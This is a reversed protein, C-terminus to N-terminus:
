KPLPRSPNINPCQVARILIWATLTLIFSRIPWGVVRTTRAVLTLSNIHKYTPGVFVACHHFTHIGCKIYSLKHTFTNTAGAFSIPCNQRSLSSSAPNKKAPKPQKGTALKARRTKLFTLSVIWTNLLEESSNVNIPPFRKESDHATSNKKKQLHGTGVQVCRSSMGDAGGLDNWM